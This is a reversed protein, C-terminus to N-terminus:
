PNLEVLEGSAIFITREAINTSRDAIREFYHAVFLLDATRAAAAPTESLQATLRLKARMYLADAEDDAPGLARAAEANLDNMAEIARDLMSQAVLGLDILESTAKLPPSGLRGIVRRAISKAHDAIRELEAGIMIASVIRRLDTAVPQQTAMLHVAHAELEQQAANITPDSTSVHEALDDDQSRLAVIARALSERVLNGLKRLQAQLEVLEVDFHERPQM